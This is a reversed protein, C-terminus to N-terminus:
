KVVPEILGYNGDKRRYLLNIRNNEPNFYLFFDHGLLEMQDVAEEVSMPKLDFKKTKVIRPGEQALEQEVAVVETTVTRISSKGKNRSYPLKRRYREIQRHMVEVTRDTATYLDPGREEGRILTGNSDLTVQVIYRQEPSHTKEETAVVDFSIINSLCRDIKSFKQAMHERIAPSVEINKGTIKMDM